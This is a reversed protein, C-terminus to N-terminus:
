LTIKAKNTQIPATNSMKKRLISFRMIGIALKHRPMRIVMITMQIANNLLYNTLGTFSQICKIMGMKIEIKWM